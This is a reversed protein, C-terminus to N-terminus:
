AKRERTAMAEPRFLSERWILRAFFAPSVDNKRAFHELTRCLDANFTKRGICIPNAEHKREYLCVDDNGEAALATQPPLLSM